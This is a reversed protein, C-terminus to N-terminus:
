DLGIMGSAVKATSRVIGDFIDGPLPKLGLDNRVLERLDRTARALAAGDADLEEFWSERQSRLEKMLVAIREACAEPILWAESALRRLLTEQAKRYIVHLEEVREQLVDRKTIEADYHEENVTTMEYLADFIVTYAATKREWVKEKRFRGLAFQATIWGGFLVAVFPLVINQWIQM